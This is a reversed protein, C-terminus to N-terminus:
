LDAKICIPKEDHLRNGNQWVPGAQKRHGSKQLIIETIVAAERTMDLATSWVVEGSLAAYATLLFVICVLLV